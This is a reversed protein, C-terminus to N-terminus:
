FSRQQPDNIFTAPVPCAGHWMGEPSFGLQTQGIRCLGNRVRSLSQSVKAYAVCSFRHQRSMVCRRTYLTNADLM